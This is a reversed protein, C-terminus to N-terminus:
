ILKNKQVDNQSAAIVDDPTIIIIIIITIIIIIVTIIIINTARVACSPLVYEFIQHQRTDDLGISTEDDWM